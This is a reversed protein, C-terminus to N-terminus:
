RPHSSQRAGLWRTDRLTRPTGASSEFRRERTQRSGGPEDSRVEAWRAMGAYAGSAHGCGGPGPRLGARQMLTSAESATFSLDAARIETLAGNLMYRNLPLPPDTRTLLVLRLGGASRTMLRHLAGGLAPPLTGEGCDLVWVVPAGHTAMRQALQGIMSRDVSATSGSVHVDRVDVGAGHLGELFSAWFDVPSPDDDDLTTYVVASSADEDVAWSRVLVTKGYGAPATVLTLPGRLGERLLALLRRRIIVDSTLPPM